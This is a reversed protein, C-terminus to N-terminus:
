GGAVGVGTWHPTPTHPIPWVQAVHGIPHPLQGGVEVGAGVLVGVGVGEGVGAVNVIEPLM